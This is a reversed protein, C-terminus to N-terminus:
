MGNNGEAPQPLSIDSTSDVFQEDDNDEDDDELQQQEADGAMEVDTALQTNACSDEGCDSNLDTSAEVFEAPDDNSDATSPEEVMHLPLSSASTEQNNDSLTEDAQKLYNGDDAVAEKSESSTNSNDGPMNSDAIDVQQSETTDDALQSDSPQSVVDAAAEKSESPTNSNDAPVNSDATDDQQLQATDDALLSDSTHSIDDDVAEKSESQMDRNNAPVNSDATDLQQLQATDDALQSDSPQLVNDGAAEKSEAQTDSNDAPISSYATEVLQLQATDDSSLSLSNTPQSPDNGASEAGSVDDRLTNQTGDSALDSNLRSEDNNIDDSRDLQLMSNGACEASVSEDNDHMNQHGVDTATTATEDVIHVDNKSVDHQLSGDVDATISESPASLNDTADTSQATDGADNTSEGPEMLSEAAAADGAPPSEVAEYFEDALLV